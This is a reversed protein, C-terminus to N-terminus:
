RMSEPAPPKTAPPAWSARPIRLVVRQGGVYDQRYIAFPTAPQTGLLAYVLASVPYGIQDVTLVRIGQGKVIAEAAVPEVFGFVYAVGDDPMAEEIRRRLDAAEEVYAPLSDLPTPWTSATNDAGVEPFWAIRHAVGMRDLYYEISPSTMFTHIIWDDSTLGDAALDRALRRDTQKARSLNGWGYTPALTALSIAIWFLLVGGAARRPALALGRGILLAFAPYALADTRTLIYVPTVVLSTALLAFLPLVLFAAELLAERREAPERARWPVLLLCAFGLAASLVIWVPSLGDATAFGTGLASAPLGGPVFIGVSYFPALWLPHTKWYTATWANLVSHVEFQRSAVLWLGAWLTLPPLHWLLWSRGPPRRPGGIPWLCLSTLVLIVAVHHTLCLLVGSVALWWGSRRRGLLLDKASLVLVLALLILLAYSRAQRSHFVGYAAVAVFAAGFFASATACRDRWRLLLVVTLIGAAASVLRVAAESTGALSTVLMELLYFFPPADDTRLQRSIMEGLPLRATLATYAEDCWLAERGLAYLRMASATILILGGLWPARNRV